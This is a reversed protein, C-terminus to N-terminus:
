MFGGCRGWLDSLTTAPAGTTTAAGTAAQDLRLPTPIRLTPAPAPTPPPLFTAPFQHLPVGALHCNIRATWQGRCYSAALQLTAM